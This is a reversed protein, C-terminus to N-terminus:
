SRTKNSKNIENTIYDYQENIVGLAYEAYMKKMYPVLFFMPVIFICCILRPLNIIFLLIVEKKRNEILKKSCKFAKNIKIDNFRIFLYETMFFNICWITALIAGLILLALALFTFVFFMYDLVQNPNNWLVRIIINMVFAPLLFIIFTVLVKFAIAIKLCMARVYIKFDKFYTIITILQSYQEDVNGLRMTWTKYGLSLPSVILRSILFLCLMICFSLNTIDTRFSQNLVNIGSFAILVQTIIIFFLDALLVIIFLYVSAAWNNALKSKAAANVYKRIKKFKM